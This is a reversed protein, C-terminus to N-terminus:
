AMGFSGLIGDIDGEIKKDIAADQAAKIQEPTADDPHEVPIEINTMDRVRRRLHSVCNVWNPGL